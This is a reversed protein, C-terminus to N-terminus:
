KSLRQKLVLAKPGYLMADIMQGERSYLNIGEKEGPIYIRYDGGTVGTHKIEVPVPKGKDNTILLYGSGGIPINTIIESKEDQKLFREDQERVYTPQKIYYERGFYKKYDKDDDKIVINNASVLGPIYDGRENKLDPSYPAIVGLREARGLLMARKVAEYEEKDDKPSILKRTKRDYIQFGEKYMDAATKVPDLRTDLGYNVWMDDPSLINAQQNETSHELVHKQIKNLVSLQINEYDKDSLRSNNDRYGQAIM